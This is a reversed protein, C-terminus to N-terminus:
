RQQRPQQQQRQQMPQQQQKRVCGGQMCARWACVRARATVKRSMAVLLLLLCWHITSSPSMSASHISDIFVTITHPPLRHTHTHPPSSPCRLPLQLLLPLAQGRM